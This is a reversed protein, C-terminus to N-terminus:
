SGAARRAPAALVAAAFLIVFAAALGSQVGGTRTYFTERQRPRVQGTLVAETFLGSAAQIAGGPGIIASIGTNAARVLYSGNEVARLAAM